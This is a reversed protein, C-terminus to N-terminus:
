VYSIEQKNTIIPLGSCLCRIQKKVGKEISPCFSSGQLLGDPDEKQGKSLGEM